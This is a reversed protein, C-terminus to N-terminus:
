SFAGIAGAATCGPGLARLTLGTMGGLAATRTRGALRALRRWGAPRLVPAGAHSVTAHVPSIFLLAAGARRARALEPVDHVSSTVLGPPKLVGRRGGRLHLGARLRAALRADGAVVLVLRRVRCLAAIRQGLMARGAVADHRFVVGCLGPPLRSLAPLPDPLRAADTFFWLPPLDRKATRHKVRRAWALLAADM